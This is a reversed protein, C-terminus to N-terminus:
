SAEAPPALYANLMDAWTDVLRDDDVPPASDLTAEIVGRNVLAGVFITAVAEFDVERITGDKHLQAFRGALERSSSWVLQDKVEALLEPFLALDRYLIRLFDRQSRLQTLGLRAFLVFIERLSFDPLPGDLSQLTRLAELEARVGAELVAQKSPFHRYMGSARPQLGATAEIDGVTTAAYGKEAFLGMAAHLIRERTTM